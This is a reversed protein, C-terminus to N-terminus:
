NKLHCATYIVSPINFVIISVIHNTNPTEDHYYWCFKLIYQLVIKTSTFMESSLCAHDLTLNWFQPVNWLTCFHMPIDLIKAPFLVPTKIIRVNRPVKTLYRVTTSYKIMPPARCWCRFPEDSCYRIINTCTPYFFSRLILWLDGRRTGVGPLRTSSPLSIGRGEGTCVDLFPLLSLPFRSGFRRVM